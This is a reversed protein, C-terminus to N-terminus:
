WEPNGNKWRRRGNKIKVPEWKINVADNSKAINVSESNKESGKKEYMIEDMKDAKQYQRVIDDRVLNLIFLLSLDLWPPTRLTIFNHIFLFHKERANRIKKFDRKLRTCNRM